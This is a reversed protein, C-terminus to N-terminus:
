DAFYVAISKIRIQATNVWEATAGNVTVTVTTGDVTVTYGAAEATAQMPEAYKSETLTIVLKAITKSNKATITVKADKYARFHDADTVRIDTTSNHKAVVFDCNETAWAITLSDAALTGGTATMTLTEDAADTEGGEGGEGGEPTAAKTIIATGGAALQKAGNYSGVKGFVTIEDGLAVNAALRYLYFTGGEADTITVTINKYQESWATNIETVTGQLVVDTGDEAATAGAATSVTAVEATAGAALQKAGNYSGIKGTVTIVDGLEVNAALRYLYFTGTADTITVTINKYQESWATNIETVVGVLIVDTGDELTAAEAATVKVPGTEEGGEGGEGGEGSSASKTIIATGGAALQKAGNYSGVKGFVILEDGVAVNAKLRYLYFTGGEADTITVTINGYQESWATNIETVTGKLVVETGDEAATADAASSVTVKEATAGQAIQKAGNYSGVKGTVTIIDGVEVNTALRFLYMTGTPDAITVSINGYQESWATNIETVVGVLIVEAGDELELAEAITMKALAVKVTIDKTATAEGCTATVTFKLEVPTSSVTLAIKGEADITYGEKDVVWSYTVDTYNTGALPLELTTDKSIFTPINLIGLEEEIKQEPTKEIKELYEFCDVSMPILYPANNYLVLIGTVNAKYGFKAAHAEDITTKDPSSVKGDESVVIDLTTPFDTVYTRIYSTKGALEFKLYDSTGGLEQGKIEVGKITVPLGVYNALSDGATFQETIDLVTVDKKTTDVIRASGGKIEQMGSYPTVPGTVEVTMGIEIGLDAVPDKDMQYCYYGGTVNADALFLHNRSNGAAKSNIAVVIGKVVVNDGEKAAMYDEFSTVNYKPVTFNFAKTASTGDAAKVTATLTYALEEPSEENVNVTYTNDDKKDITVGETVTWEVDYSVGAVQVKATVDFDAATVPGKDKYLNFVYAAAAAADYTVETGPDQPQEPTCAAFCTLCLVLAMLSVLLKKM